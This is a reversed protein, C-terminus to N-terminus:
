IDEERIDALKDDWAALIEQVEEEPLQMTRAILVAPLGDEFFMEYVQHEISNM